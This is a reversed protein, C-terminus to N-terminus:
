GAELVSVLAVTKEQVSLQNQTVILRFFTLFRQDSLSSSKTNVRSLARRSYITKWDDAQRTFRQTGHTRPVSPTSVSARDPMVPHFPEETLPLCQPTM